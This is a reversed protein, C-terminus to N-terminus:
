DRVLSFIALILIIASASLVVVINFSGIQLYDYLTHSIPKASAFNVWLANSNQLLNSIPAILRGLPLSLVIGALCCCWATFLIARRRLEQAQVKYMVRKTFNGEQVKPMESLLTTLPVKPSEISM